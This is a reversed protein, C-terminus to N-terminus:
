RFLAASSVSLTGQYIGPTIGEYKKFVRIFADSNSFGTKEAVTKISVKPNQLLKKAEQIRIQHIYALIGYGTKKRFIKSINAESLGFQESLLTLCLSPDMYHALIFSEIETILNEKTHSSSADKDLQSQRIQEILQYFYQRYEKLYQYKTLQTLTTNTLIEKPQCEGQLFFYVKWTTLALEMIRYRILEKRNPAEMRFLEDLLSDLMILANEYDQNRLYNEYSIEQQFSLRLSEKQDTSFVTNYDLIMSHNTPLKSELAELAADYANSIDPIGSVTMSCGASFIINLNEQIFQQAKSLILLLEKRCVEPASEKYNILVAFYNNVEASFLLVKSGFMEKLVKEILLYATQQNSEPHETLLVGCDEIEFLFVSFNETQFNLGYKKCTDEFGADTPLSGFLLRSICHQRLVDSQQEVVSHLMDNQQLINHILEQILLYENKKQNWQYQPQHNLLRILKGIPNYNIRVFYATLIGAILLSVAVAAIFLNRIYILKENVIREPILYQYQWNTQNSRIGSWAIKETKGYWNLDFDQGPKLSLTTGAALLTPDSSFLIMDNEDMILILADEDVGDAATIAQQIFSKRLFTTVVGQSDKVSEVPLFLHYAAFDQNARYFGNQGQELDKHLMNQWTQDDMVQNLEWLEYLARANYTGKPTIAMDSKELYVFFNDLFPNAVQYSNYDQVVDRLMYRHSVELNELNLLSTLRSDLAIKHTFQEAESLRSDITYQLQELRSNNTQMIEDSIVNHSVVYIIAIMILPVLPMSLYTIIFVVIASYKQPLPRGRKMQVGVKETYTSHHLM